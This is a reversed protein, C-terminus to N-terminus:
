GGPKAFEQPASTPTFECNVAAGATNSRMSSSAALSAPVLLSSETYTNFSYQYEHPLDFQIPDERAIRSTAGNPPRLVWQDSQRHLIQSALESEVLQVPWAIELRPGPSRVTLDFDLRSLCPGITGDAFGDADDCGDLTAVAPLNVEDRNEQM